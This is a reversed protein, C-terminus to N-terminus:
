SEKTERRNIREHNQFLEDNINKTEFHDNTNWNRNIKKEIPCWSSIRLCASSTRIQEALTETKIPWQKRKMKKWNKSKINARKKMNPKSPKSEKKYNKSSKKANKNNKKKYKKPTKSKRIMSKRSITSFIRSCWSKNTQKKNREKM